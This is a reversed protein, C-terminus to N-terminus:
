VLGSDIDENAIIRKCIRGASVDSLRLYDALAELLMFCFFKPNRGDDKDAFIHPIKLTAKKRFGCFDVSERKFLIM